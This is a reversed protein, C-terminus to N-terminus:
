FPSMSEFPTPPPPARHEQLWTHAASISPLTVMFLENSHPSYAALEITSARRDSANGMAWAVYREFDDLSLSRRGASDFFELAFQSALTRTDITPFEAELECAIGFISRNCIEKRYINTQSARSLTDVWSIFHCRDHLERMVAHKALERCLDLRKDKVKESRLKEGSSKFEIIAFRDYDSIVYDGGLYRDQGDVSFPYFQCRLTEAQSKMFKNFADAYSQEHQM